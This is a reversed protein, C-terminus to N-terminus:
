QGTCGRILIIAVIVAAFGLVLEGIWSLIVFLYAVASIVYVCLNGLWGLLRKM